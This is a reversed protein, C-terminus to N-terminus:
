GTVSICGRARTLAFAMLAYPRIGGGRGGERGEVGFRVQKLVSEVRMKLATNKEIERDLEKRLDKIKEGLEECEQAVINVLGPLPRSCLASDYSPPPLRPLVPMLYVFLFLVRRTVHHLCKRRSAGAVRGITRRPKCQKSAPVCVHVCASASVFLSLARARMRTRLLISSPPSFRM